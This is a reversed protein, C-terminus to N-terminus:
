GPPTAPETSAKELAAGVLFVLAVILVFTASHRWFAANGHKM